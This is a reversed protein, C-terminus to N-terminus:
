YYYNNNIICLLIYHTDSFRSSRERNEDIFKLNVRDVLELVRVITYRCMGIYCIPSAYQAINCHRISWM